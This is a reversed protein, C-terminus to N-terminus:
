NSMNYFQSQVDPYLVAELKSLVPVLKDFRKELKFDGKDYMGTKRDFEELPNILQSIFNTTNEITNLAVTPNRLIRQADFTNFGPIFFIIDGYLRRSQLILQETIWSDDDDDGSTLAAYLTWISIASVIEALSKARATKQDDTLNNGFLLDFKGQKLNVYLDTFFKRYYGYEVNGSEINLKEGSWRRQIGTYIWGRFLLALKGYWYRKLTPSDFQNYIGHMQKNLSHVKQMFNFQDTESWEVGKKLNGNEDYADWLSITTNGQKVKINKMMAIFSVSQIQHEAGHQLFFLSDSSFMRKVASGSVKDGYDKTFEGQIADYKLLLRGLKSKPFGRTVDGIINPVQSFYELQASAYDTKNYNKGAIAEVASNFNGVLTNNFFSNVNMALGNLSAYQLLKRSLKNTNYQKDGITFLSPIEYEGYVVKDIFSILAENVNQTRAKLLGSGIANRKPKNDVTLENVERPSIDMANNGVINDTIMQVFPEIRSMSSYNNSMQTFFLTSRLLDSSVEHEELYDTYYIPIQKLESGDPRQLGTSKDYATINVANNLDDELNQLMGASNGTIYKDFATKRVQPIIGYKLKKEPHLKNNAENYAKTLEQFYKDSKLSEYKSNKYKDSPRFAESNYDLVYFFKSDESTRYIQEPLYYMTNPKGDKNLKFEVKKSNNALWRKFNFNSLESKKREVLDSANEILVTNNKLWEKQKIINDYIEEETEAKPLSRRFERYDKDFQDYKYESVYAKKRVYKYSGKLKGDEDKLIKGDKDRDYVFIYDLVEDIYKKNFEDPNDSGGTEKYLNLLREYTNFNDQHVKFAEEKIRAAILGTLPDRSNAQAGFLKELVSIDSTAANLLNKIKVKTILFTLKGQDTLNKNVREAQSMLWQTIVEEHLNKYVFVVERRNKIADDLKKYDVSDVNYLRQMDNLITYTSMFEKIENMTEALEELESPSLKEIGKNEIMRNIKRIRILSEETYKQAIEIMKTLGLISNSTALESLIEDIDNVYSKGDKRKSWIAKQILLNDKLKRSLESTIQAETKIADSIIKKAANYDPIDYGNLIFAKMAMEEAKVGHDKRLKEVLEIWEKSNKNPCIM